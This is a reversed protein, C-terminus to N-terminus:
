QLKGLSSMAFAAAFAAETIGHGRFDVQVTEGPLLDFFNDSFAGPVGEAQLYLNKILRDAHLRLRIGDDTKRTSVLPAGSPLHLEKVPHFYLLNESIAKAGDSLRALLLARRTDVGAALADISRSFLIQSSNAALTVPAAHKWLVDGEFTAVRLDLSLHQASLRDNVAHVNLVGDVIQPSVLVPAFAKRAFYQQAKWRGYYDISSWSAVPWCDNIQWFLSGMCFPMRIRHAEMAIKIGEAQLVQGVYLFSKFDAPVTYDREMYTKITANGISSRQHAQMVESFIDRDEKITYTAVTEFAPFSQFGYESMFRGINARYESFPKQGWWVDWYHIDGAQAPRTVDAHVKWDAQPSSPWYFRGKDQEAIVAPLIEHFIAEYARWLEAKQADNYRQKWGWGGTPVDNQWASDIENNGCWVAICAHNRLRRVNDVAEQRVSELFGADGPYMACAFMFDQWVLIGNEDCLDYFHDDEYVGGGWVRLMNMHSDAASRVVAAYADPTVRPLFSDNPIYNAGKMFVPVGNLEIHFGAGQADPKRVVRLSRLGIRVEHSATEVGESLITTRITYLHAEGLGNSWWLRPKDITLRAELRNGGPHLKVARRATLTADTPSAITLEVTRADESDLSVIVDLQARDQWVASQLIQVDRIRVMDWARLEVRRWLGSTVFRPGWDWGYHYGAKRTFLGVRAEGLGGVESQDNPSPPNYGKAALLRQGERIPSRFLVRLVNEGVRVHHKIDVDWTRFMNDASLIHAENLYVDAYTDIGAFALEIRDKAALGVDVHFTTRYEWDVKDIWQQNRENTRFFPDEIVGAALLDTHVTGPVTAPMWAADGVKRFTWGAKIPMVTQGHAPRLAGDRAFAPSSLGSVGLLAQAGAAQLILRRTRDFRNV